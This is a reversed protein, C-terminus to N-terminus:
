ELAVPRPGGGQVAQEGGRPGGLTLHGQRGPADQEDQLASRLGAARPRGDTGGGITPPRAAPEGSRPGRPSNHRGSTGPRSGAGSGRSIATGNNWSFINM